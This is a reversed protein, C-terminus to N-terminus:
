RISNNRLDLETISRNVELAGALAEVGADFVGISNWELCLATVSSNGKLGDALVAAGEASLQSGRLSLKRQTSNQRLNDALRQVAAEDLVVDELTQTDADDYTDEM